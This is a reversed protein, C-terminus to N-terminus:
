LQQSAAWVAAQARSHVGLKNLLRVVQMHASGETIVLAAAIERNTCGRALLAAVERERRTLETPSRRSEGGGAPLEAALGLAEGVASDLPMAQGEQRALARHQPSLRREARDLEAPAPALSSPLVGESYHQAALTPGIAQYLTAAASALRVARRPRGLNAALRAFAVLSAVLGPRDDVERRLLVAQQLHSYAARPDGQSLALEALGQLAWATAQKDGVRRKIALAEEFLTTARPYDGRERALTALLDLTHAVGTQNHIERSLRLREQWCTEATAHDGHRHALQGLGLMVHAVGWRDGQQRFLGLSEDLYRQADDARGQSRAILGRTSLAFAMGWVDELQVYREYSLSALKDGREFDTRFLSLHALRALSEAIVHQNEIAEGIALASEQLRQAASLDLQYQAILGAASLAGARAERLTDSAVGDSRAAFHELWTRGEFRDGGRLYWFWSLASALSTGLELDNAQDSWTLAANLNSRDRELRNLWEVQDPGHLQARASQALDRWYQAYRRQVVALEGSEALQERAYERITELMRFYPQGDPLADRRLLHQDALAALRALVYVDDHGDTAIARAADLSIGGFFVGLRRFVIQNADPLLRYSWGIAERLTRQRPPQDQAGGELLDLRHDLHTLQAQPSIARTQTAALELALPLCDLRRCLEAVASTSDGFSSSGAAEARELFLSIADTLDLPPAEFLHEWRISLPARSTVIAKLRGTTGLLEAVQTAASLLHEFNDLVLLVPRDALVESVRELASARTLEILGLSLGIAVLVQAPDSVASLNVFAVGGPFSGHLDSAIAVALRTKGIGAAGTVTVLRVDERLLLQRVAAIEHPRGILKTPQAPLRSARDWARGPEQM